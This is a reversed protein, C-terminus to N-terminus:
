IGLLIKILFETHLFCDLMTSMESVGDNGDNGYNSNDDTGVLGIVTTMLNVIESGLMGTRPDRNEGTNVNVLTLLNVLTAVLNNRTEIVM